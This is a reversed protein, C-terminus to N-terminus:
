FIGMFGTLYERGEGNFAGWVSPERQPAKESIKPKTWFPNYKWDVIESFDENRSLCM